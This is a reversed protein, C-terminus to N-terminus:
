YHITGNRSFRRSKRTMSNSPHRTAVNKHITSAVHLRHKKQRERQVDCAIRPHVHRQVRNLLQALDRLSYNMEMPDKTSPHGPAKPENESPNWASVLPYCFEIFAEISEPDDLDLLEDDLWFFDRTCSQLRSVAM